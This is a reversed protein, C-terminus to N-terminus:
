TRNKKVDAKKRGQKKECKSFRKKKKKVFLVHRLLTFGMWVKGQEACWVPVTKKNISRTRKQHASPQAQMNSKYM